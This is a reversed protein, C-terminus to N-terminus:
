RPFKRGARRGLTKYAYLSGDSLRHLDAVQHVALADSLENAENVANATLAEIVARTNPTVGGHERLFAMEDASRDSM